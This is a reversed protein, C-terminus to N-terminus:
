SQGAQARLYQGLAAACPAGQGSSTSGSLTVLLGSQSRYLQTVRYVNGGASYDYTALVSWSKKDSGPMAQTTVATMGRGLLGLRLQQAMAKAQAPTTLLPFAQGYRDEQLLCNGSADQWQTVDGAVPTWGPLPVTLAGAWASLLLLLAFVRKM